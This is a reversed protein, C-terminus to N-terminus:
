AAAVSLVLADTDAAARPVAVVGAPVAAASVPAPRRAMVLVVCVVLCSILGALSCVLVASQGTDHAYGAWCLNAAASLGWRLGSVGSLDQGRDRLLALPQPLNALLVAGTLAVGLASGLARDDSGPLYALGAAAATVALLATAGSAAGLGTRRRRLDPRAVLLAVLIALGALGTVTNTVIQVPDGILLGYEIWGLPLAVGLWTATPSLGATRRRVASTWVQPWLLTVSLGAAM